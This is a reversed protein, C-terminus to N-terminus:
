HAAAPEIIAIIAGSRASHRVHWRSCFSIEASGLLCKFPVPKQSRVRQGQIMGFKGVVFLKWVVVVRERTAELIAVVIDLAGRGGQRGHRRRDVIYAYENEM